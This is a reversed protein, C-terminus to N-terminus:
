DRYLVMRSDEFDKLILRLEDIGYEDLPKAELGMRTQYRRQEDSDWDNLRYIEEIQKRAEGKTKPRVGLDPKGSRKLMQSFVEHRM